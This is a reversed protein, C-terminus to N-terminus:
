KYTHIDSLSNESFDGWTIKLIENSSSSIKVRKMEPYKVM